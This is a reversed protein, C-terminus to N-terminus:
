ENLRVRKANWYPTILNYHGIVWFSRFFFFFFSACYGPVAWKRLRRNGRIIRNSLVKFISYNFIIIILIWVLNYCNNHQFKRWTRLYIWKSDNRWGKGNKPRQCINWIGRLVLFINVSFFFKVSRDSNLQTSQFSLDPKQIYVLASIIHFWYFFFTLNCETPM